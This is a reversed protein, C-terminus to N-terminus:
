LKPETESSFHTSLDEWFLAVSLVKFIEMIEPLCEFAFTHSVLACDLQFVIPWCKTRFLSVIEKYQPDDPNMFQFARKYSPRMWKGSTLIKLLKRKAKQNSRTEQETGQERAGREFCKDSTLIKLLKRKAKQNSRTEQETGQERAGREFCEIAKDLYKTKTTNQRFLLYYDKGAKMHAQSHGNKSALYYFKTTIRCDVPVGEGYAYMLALNYQAKAFNLDSAIMYYKFAMQYSAYPYGRDWMVGLDFAVLPHRETELLTELKQKAECWYKRGLTLDRPGGWGEHNYLGLRYLLHYCDAYKDLTTVILRSFRFQNEDHAQDTIDIFGQILQEISLTPNRLNVKYPFKRKGQVEM